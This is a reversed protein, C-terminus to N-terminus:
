SNGALAQQALAMEVEEGKHLTVRGFPRVENIRDFGDEYLTSVLYGQEYIKEMLAIPILLDGYDTIRAYTKNKVSM